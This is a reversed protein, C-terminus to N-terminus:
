AEVPEYVMGVPKLGFRLALKAAIPATIGAFIAFPLTHVGASLTSYGLVFQFYQTIIFIFGFLCFSAAAISGAAASFTPIRFIRVNILPKATRLEWWIFVALLLASVAFGGITPVSTWGYRPGAIVTFVLLGIAAISLVTGLIDFRAVEPDRSTPLLIAGAGVAVIVIPVNVLFVSGWWFHELLFGGTVPGFAVALGSM